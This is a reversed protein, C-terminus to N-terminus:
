KLHSIHPCDELARALKAAGVDTLGGSIFRTFSLCVNVLAFVIGPFLTVFHLFFVVSM